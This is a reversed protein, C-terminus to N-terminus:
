WVFVRADNSRASATDSQQSPIETVPKDTWVPMANSMPRVTAAYMVGFATQVNSNTRREKCINESVYSKMFICISQLVCVHKCFCGRVYMYAFM